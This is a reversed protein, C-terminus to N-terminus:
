AIPRVLMPVVYLDSRITTVAVSVPLRCMLSFRSFASETLMSVPPSPLGLLCRCVDLRPTFSMSKPGLGMNRVRNPSIPNITLPLQALGALAVSSLLVSHPQKVTLPPLFTPTPRKVSRSLQLTAWVCPSTPLHTVRFM